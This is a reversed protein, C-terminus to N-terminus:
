LRMMYEVVVNWFLEDMYLGEFTGAGSFDMEEDIM